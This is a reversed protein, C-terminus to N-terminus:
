DIIKFGRSTLWNNALDVWVAVNKIRLENRNGSSTEENALSLGHVGREFVHLEFPVGHEAYALAMFLSNQVPVAGDEKTHWIFAPASNKNVRKELSLKNILSKKGGSITMITTEHWYEPCSTIVPYSLIVADPRTLSSAEKLALKVAEDDYLTALMGTLHGGASFGVACVHEVDVAYKEANQRIYAVAMCAEILQTPFSLTKVSYELTFASYGMSMFKIAVPEKERDSVIMYAGGPIVLMAPRKRAMSLEPSNDMAYATLYGAAGKKRKIGFYKYLDIKEYVM